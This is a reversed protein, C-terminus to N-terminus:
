QVNRNQAEAAQMAEAMDHVEELIFGEHMLEVAREDTALVPFAYHKGEITFHVLWIGAECADGGNVAEAHGFTPVPGAESLEGGGEDRLEASALSRLDLTETRPKTPDNM